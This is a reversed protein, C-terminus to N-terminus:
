QPVGTVVYTQAQTNWRFYYNTGSSTYLLCDQFLTTQARNIINTTVTVDYITEGHLQLVETISDYSLTIPEDGPYYFGNNLTMLLGNADEYNLSWTGGPMGLWANNSKYILPPQNTLTHYINTVSSGTYSETHDYTWTDGPTLNYQDLIQQTAWDLTYAQTVANTTTTIVYFIGDADMYNTSSGWLKDTRNTAAFTQVAATYNSINNLETGIIQYHADWATNIDASTAWPQNTVNVTNFDLYQIPLPLTNPAFGPSPLLRITGNVRWLPNSSGAPWIGIWYHNISAGTDMCPKWSFQIEGSAPSTITASNTWWLNATTNTYWLFQATAGTLNLPKYGDRLNVYATIYEGQKYTRQVATHTRVDVSWTDTLAHATLAAFLAIAALSWPSLFTARVPNLPPKFM